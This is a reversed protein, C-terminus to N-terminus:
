LVFGSLVGEANQKVKRVPNSFPFTGLESM